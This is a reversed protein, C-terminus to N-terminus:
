RLAAASGLREVHRAATDADIEGALSLAPRRGGFLAQAAARVDEASPREIRAVAEEVTVHPEGYLERSLNLGAREAARETYLVVGRALLAKTTALEEETPGDAMLHDIEARCVELVEGLNAPSTSGSVCFTGTDAGLYVSSGISYVLGRKERVENFLRSGMGSGLIADLLYVPFRAPDVRRVARVGFCFHVQELDDWQHHALGALPEPPPEAAAGALGAPLAALLPEAIAVAEEFSLGGALSLVTNPGTAVRHWYGLAEDRAFGGVTERTGIVPRGLPHDGFLAETFSEAAVDGPSDEYEAIEELIVTREREVEAKPFDSEVAMEVMLSLGERLDAAVFRNELMIHDLSTSANAHGGLVNLRKSLTKWDHRGTGKFLLHECFHTLGSQAAVEHRSGRDFCLFAAVVGRGPMPEVVIRAGNALQHVHVGNPM